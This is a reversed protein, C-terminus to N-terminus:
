SLSIDSLDISVMLRDHIPLLHEDRMFARRKTPLTIGQVTV